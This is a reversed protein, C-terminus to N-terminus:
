WRWPTTITTTVTIAATRRCRPPTATAAQAPPSPDHSRAAAPKQTAPHSAAATGCGAILAALLALGAGARATFLM